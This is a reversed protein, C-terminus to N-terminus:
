CDGMINKHNQKEIEKTAESYATTFDKGMVLLSMTMDYIEGGNHCNMESFLFLAQQKTIRNLVKDKESCVIECDGNEVKRLYIALDKSTETAM